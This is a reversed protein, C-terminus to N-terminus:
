EDGMGCHQCTEGDGPLERCYTCLGLDLRLESPYAYYAAFGDILFGLGLSLCNGLASARVVLLRRGSWRSYGLPALADSNAGAEWASSRQINQRHSAAGLGVEVDYNWVGPWLSVWYEGNEDREVKEGDLYLEAEPPDVVVHCDYPLWQFLLTGCGSLPLLLVAVLLWRRM